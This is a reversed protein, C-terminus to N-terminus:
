SNVAAMNPMGEGMQLCCLLGFDFQLNFVAAPIGPPEKTCTWWAITLATPFSRRFACMMNLVPMSAKLPATLPFM